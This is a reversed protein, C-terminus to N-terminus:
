PRPSPPPAPWAADTLPDAPADTLAGAGLAPEEGFDDGLHFPTYVLSETLGRHGLICMAVYADSADGWDFLRLAMCAYAGRLGHVRGVAAYPSRALHRSLTGQYRVGAERHSLRAGGQKKGLAAFAAAVAAAPALTPVVYAEAAGRRKAQGAFEVAYAGCPRVVAHGALVECTRRGTVLMLALALEILPTDAAAIAARAAALLARGAVRRRARNKAVAGRSALRKCAMVETRTIRLSYANAPLRPPLRALWQRARPDRSRGDAGLARALEAGLAADDAGAEAVLLAACARWAPDPACLQRVACCKVNLCRPTTYRARMRALVAEAPEGADLAAACARLFDM